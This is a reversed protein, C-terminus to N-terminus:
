AQRFRDSSSRVSGDDDVLFFEAGVKTLLVVAEEAGLVVATTALVDAAAATDAVVTASRVGSAPQGTRPDLIKVYRTGNITWWRRGSGSTALAENSISITAMPAVNDYARTPDEVGVVVAGPGRHVLDGGLNLWGTTATGDDFAADLSRDAIWGKAIGNLNLNAPLPESRAAALEGRTPPQGMREAADWLDFLHQLAPDYMGDTYRYWDNALDMVTQLEPISTTGTRRLDHLASSGDFVTFIKELRGAEDVAAAENSTAVVENADTVHIECRTGLLPEVRQLQGGM